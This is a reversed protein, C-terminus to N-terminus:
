GGIMSRMSDALEVARVVGTGILRIQYRTSRYGSPLKFAVMSTPTIPGHVVAGDALLEFTVTGTFDLRAVGINVPAPMRFVGSLWTFSQPSGTSSDWKQINRTSGSGNFCLYLADRSRDRFAATAWLSTECFVPNDLFSFVLGAQRTGNDFFCIYRGDSECGLMSEPKYAQWERRTMLGETLMKFGAESFFGLGDPTAFAVGGLIEIMSRSSVCTQNVALRESTINTPDSGTFVYLSRKTAVLLSQSFAAMAVVPADVSQQYASPWAYPTFPVSFCVTSGSYGALVGNAMQTLGLMDDPPELWDRTALANGLAATTKTDTYTTTVMDGIEAVFLYRASGSSGTASRYLRRKTYTQSRSANGPYSPTGGVPLSTLSISQGPRWSVAGSADSPPGEENWDTVLTMVYVVTEAPDSPNTATGTVTPTPMATPKQLGMPRSTTPYPASATALTNKTKSPYALHGTAYTKYETDQDISGKVWRAEGTHQFWYTTENNNNDTIDAQYRYISLVPNTSTLAVVQTPTNYAVMDGGTLLTNIASVAEGPQLLDQAVVPRMGGFQRITIKM